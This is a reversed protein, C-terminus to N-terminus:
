LGFRETLEKLHSGIFLACYITLIIGVTIGIPLLFSIGTEDALTQFDFGIFITSLSILIIIGAIIWNRTSIGGPVAYADSEAIEEHEHASTIRAMIYDEHLPSSPFFDNRMVSKSIEFREIERACNQCMLAHLWVQIQSSLPMSVDNDRGSFEYIMDMVKACNM